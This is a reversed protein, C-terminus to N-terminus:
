NAALRLVNFTGILNIEIVFKFQELPFPGDRGVTRVANDIGAYNCCIHIAGYAQM